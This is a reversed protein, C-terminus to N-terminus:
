IRRFGKSKKRLASILMLLTLWFCAHFIWHQLRVQSVLDSIERMRSDGSKPSFVSPTNECFVQYQKYDANDIFFEKEASLASSVIFINDIPM